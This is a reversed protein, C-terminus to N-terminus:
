PSPEGTTRGRWRGRSVQIAHGHRAHERLRRYLTARTMGTLRILEAIEYGDQPARGLALWLADEAAQREGGPPDARNSDGPGGPEPVVAPALPAATLAHRSIADLHPRGPANRAVAEQVDNDRDSAAVPLVLGGRDRGVPLSVAEVM